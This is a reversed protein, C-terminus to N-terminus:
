RQSMRTKQNWELFLLSKLLFHFSLDVFVVDLLVAVPHLDSEIKEGKTDLMSEISVSVCPVTTYDDSPQENAFLFSVITELERGDDGDNDDNDDKGILDIILGTM